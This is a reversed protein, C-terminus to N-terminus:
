ASVIAAIGAACAPNGVCTPMIQVDAYHAQWGTAEAIQSLTTGNQDCPMALITAKKSDERARPAGSDPRARKRAKASTKASTALGNAPVPALTQIAMWIRLVTTKRDTLRQVPNL